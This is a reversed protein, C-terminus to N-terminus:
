LQYNNVEDFLTYFYTNFSQMFNLPLGSKRVATHEHKLRTFPNMPSRKLGSFEDFMANSALSACANFHYHTIWSVAM